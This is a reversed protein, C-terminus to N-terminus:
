KCTHLPLGQITQSWKEHCQIIAIIINNSTHQGYFYPVWASKLTALIKECKLLKIAVPTFISKKMSSRRMMVPNTIPCKIIGRYVEGFAGEGLREKVIIEDSPIEWRDLQQPSALSRQFNFNRIGGSFM